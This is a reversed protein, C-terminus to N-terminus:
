ETNSILDNLQHSELLALRVADAIDQRRDIISQGDIAQVQVVVQQAGPTVGAGTSRPMGNLGENVPGMAGTQNSFGLEYNQPPPPAFKVPSAAPSNSGSGGILSAVGELMPGFIASLWNKETTGSVGAASAGIAQQVPQLALNTWNNTTASGSLSRTNSSLSEPGSPPGIWSVSKTSEVGAVLQHVDSALAKRDVARIKDTEKM